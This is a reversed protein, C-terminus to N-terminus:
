QPVRIFNGMFDVNNQQPHAPTLMLPDTLNDERRFEMSGRDRVKLNALSMVQVSVQQGFPVGQIVYSSTYVGSALVPPNLIGTAVVTWTPFNLVWGPEGLPVTSPAAPTMHGASISLAPWGEAAADSENWRVFGSIYPAQIDVLIQASYSFRNLNNCTPDGMFGANDGQVVITAVISLEGTTPDLEVTSADTALIFPGGTSSISALSVTSSSQLIRTATKNLRLTVTMRSIDSDCDGLLVGDATGIVIGSFLLLQAPPDSVTVQIPPNAVTLTAVFTGGV